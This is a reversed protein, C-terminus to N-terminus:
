ALKIDNENKYNGQFGNQGFMEVAERLLRSWNAFEANRKKISDFPETINCRRFTKGLKTCLETWDTYFKLATLHEISWKDGQKFGYYHDNLGLDKAQITKAISAETMYIKAANATINFQKLTLHRLLEQKLNEYKTKVYLEFEKYKDHKMKNSSFYIYKTDKDKYKDWYYFTFGESFARKTM